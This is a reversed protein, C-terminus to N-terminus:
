IFPIKIKGQDYIRQYQYKILETKNLNMESMIQVTSNAEIEDFDVWLNDFYEDSALIFNKYLIKRILYAQRGTLDLSFIDLWYYWVPQRYLHRIPTSLYIICTQKRYFHEKHSFFPKKKPKKIVCFNSNQFPEKGCRINESFLFM